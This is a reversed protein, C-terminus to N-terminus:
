AVESKINLPIIGVMAYLYYKNNIRIVDGASISRFYLETNDNLELFVKSALKDVNIRGKSGAKTSYVPEYMQDFDNEIMSFSDTLLRLQVDAFYSKSVYYVVVNHGKKKAHRLIDM